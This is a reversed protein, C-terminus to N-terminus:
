DAKKIFAETISLAKKINGISFNYGGATCDFTMSMYRMIIRIAPLITPPMSGYDDQTGKYSQAINQLMAGPPKNKFVGALKAITVDMALNFKKTLSLLKNAEVLLAESEQLITKIQKKTFTVNITDAKLDLDFKKLRDISLYVSRVADRAKKYDTFSVRKEKPLVAVIQSMGILPETAFIDSYLRGNEKKLHNTSVVESVLEYMRKFHDMVFQDGTFTVKSGIYSAINFRSEDNLDSAVSCFAQMVKSMKVYEQVYEDADTIVRNNGYNVYKNNAISITVTANDDLEALSRKLKQLRNTQLNAITVFTQVNDITNKLALSTHKFIKDFFGGKFREIQELTLNDYEGGMSSVGLSEMASSMVMNAQNSLQLLNGQECNASLDEFAVLMATNYDVLRRHTEAEQALEAAHEELDAIESHNYTSM